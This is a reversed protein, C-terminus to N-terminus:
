YRVITGKWVFHGREERISMVKCVISSRSVVHLSHSISVQPATISTGVDFERYDPMSVAACDIFAPALCADSM